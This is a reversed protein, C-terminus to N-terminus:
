LLMIFASFYKKKGNMAKTLKCHGFKCNAGKSKWRDYKRVEQM